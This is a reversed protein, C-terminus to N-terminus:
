SRVQLALEVEVEEEEEEEMAIDEPVAVALEAMLESDPLM